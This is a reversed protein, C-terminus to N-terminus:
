SGTIVLSLLSKQFLIPLLHLLLPSLTFCTIRLTFCSGLPCKACACVPLYTWYKQTLINGSTINKPGFFSLSHEHYKKYWVDNYQYKQTRHLCDQFRNANNLSIKYEHVPKYIYFSSINKPQM